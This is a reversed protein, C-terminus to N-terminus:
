ADHRFVEKYLDVISKNQNDRLTEAHGELAIEGNKIFYVCDIINEIEHVLHSSMLLINDEKLTDLIANIIEDRAILDIGNLPEDLMYIDAKRAMTSAIKLKSTMGTSLNKVKLEPTLSMRKLLENFHKTDFDQYFDAHFQGVQKISMYNYLYADTSMYAIQNKSNVNIPTQDILIVGNTPHFLGAIMKMLTSKGSGNPGLLGYINGKELQISVNNVAKFSGFRKTLNKTQLKQTM